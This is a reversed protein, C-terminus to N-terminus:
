VPRGLEGRQMSEFVTLALPPRERTPMTCAWLPCIIVLVIRGVARSLRATFIAGDRSNWTCRISRVLLAKVLAVPPLVRVVPLKVVSNTVALRLMVPMVLDRVVTIHERSSLPM